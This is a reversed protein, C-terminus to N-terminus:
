AAVEAAIIAKHAACVVPKEREDAWNFRCGCDMVVKDGLLQGRGYLVRYEKKKPKPTFLRIAADVFMWFAFMHGGNEM